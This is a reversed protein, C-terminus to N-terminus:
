EYRKVVEGNKKTYEDANCWRRYHEELEDIGELLTMERLFDFVSKEGEEWGEHWTMTKTKRTMNASRVIILERNM